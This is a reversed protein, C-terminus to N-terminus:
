RACSPSTTPSPKSLPSGEKENYNSIMTKNGAPCTVGTKDLIFKDQPLLGTPNFGERNYDGSLLIGSSISNTIVNSAINNYSFSSAYIEIGLSNSNLINSSLTNNNSYYLYIGNGSNNSIKNDTIDNNSSEGVCVGRNNNLVINNTVTNRLSSDTLTIGSHSNNLVNNSAITNDISSLLYIGNLNKSINNNKILSNISSVILIGKENNALTNNKILFHNCNVLTIKGVNSVKSTSLNLNEIIIPDEATGHIDYFYYVHEGNVVNSQDIYNNTNAINLGYDSNNEITNETLNNNESSTDIDIGSQSNSHANNNSINNSSSAWLHVGYENNSFANNRYITNNSSYEIAIGYDNNSVTNNSIGNNNSSWLHIGIYNSNVSNNTVKNNSSKYLKIGCDKNSSIINNIITNNSSSSICIGESGNQLTFGSINVDNTNKLHICNDSWGADIITANSGDGQLTLSKDVVVNENYTGADVTITHGDSTDPDDIASQITAFDEGTDVNHIPFTSVEFSLEATDNVYRTKNAYIM